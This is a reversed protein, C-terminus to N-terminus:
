SEEEFFELELMECVTHYLPLTLEQIEPTSRSPLRIAVDCLSALKGGDQGTISVSRVGMAKATQAARVVNLSNGSTSLLIVTDSPKGIAFIQQAFVLDAGNDNSVASILEHHCCLSLAPIGRQLKSSLYAADKEPISVFFQTKQKKEMNRPLLFGKMLEGTIHGCDAASGGNGALLITGGSSVTETLLCFCALLETEVDCLAPYRELLRKEAQRTSKKM